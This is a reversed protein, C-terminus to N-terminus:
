KEAEDGQIAILEVDFILTANPGIPGGGTGGPGYALASPIFLQWKSGVPMLQLAETWGPIVGGVPFSVTSGRKYSSDFETGDILTGAYHVEVTDEASPKAGTGATIVKYQLGSETTTVGEKAGNEALFADGDAKNQEAVKDMEAQQEAMQREQFLQMEQMIEEQTMLQEGGAVADKVGQSFADVDITFTEQKIRQGLGIGMGYSVRQEATDLTTPAPAAAQEENCGVLTASVAASIAAALILNRKM